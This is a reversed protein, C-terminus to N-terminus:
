VGEIRFRVKTGAPVNRFGPIVLGLLTAGLTTSSGKAFLHVIQRNSNAVSFVNSVINDNVGAANTMPWSENAWIESFIPEGGVTNDMTANIACKSNGDVLYDITSFFRKVGGQAVLIGHPLNMTNLFVKEWYGNTVGTVMIREMYTLSETQGTGEVWRYHGGKRDGETVGSLLLVAVGPEGKVLKLEAMNKVSIM